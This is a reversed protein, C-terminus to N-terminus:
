PFISKPGKVVCSWFSQGFKTLFAQADELSVVDSSCLGQALDYSFNLVLEVALRLCDQSGHQHTAANIRLNWLSRFDRKRNRRDRTSFQLGKQMRQTAIRLCNNAKGKYGKWALNPHGMKYVVTTKPIRNSKKFSWKAPIICRFGTPLRPSPALAPAELRVSSFSSTSSSSPLVDARRGTKWIAKVVVKKDMYGMVTIKNSISEIQVCKVGKIKCLSKRVAKECAKCHLHVKLEMVEM